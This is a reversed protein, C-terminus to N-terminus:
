RVPRDRSQDFVDGGDTLGDAVLHREGGVVEAVEGHVVRDAQAPCERGVLEGPELVHDGPLVGIEALLDGAGDVQGGERSLIDVELFLERFEDVGVRDVEIWGSRAVAPPM